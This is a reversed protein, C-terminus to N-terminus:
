LLARGQDVEGQAVEDGAKVGEEGGAHGRQRRAEELGAGLGGGRARERVGAVRQHQLLLRRQGVGPVEEVAAVGGGGEVVARPGVLLPLDEPPLHLGHHPSAPPLLLGLLLSPNPGPGPGFARRGSAIKRPGSRTRARSKGARGMVVSHIHLKIRKEQILFSAFM